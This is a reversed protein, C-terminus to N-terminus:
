SQQSDTGCEDCHCYPGYEAEFCASCVDQAARDIQEHAIAAARNEDVGNQAAISSLNRYLEATHGCSHTVKVIM